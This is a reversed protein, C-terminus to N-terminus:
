HPVVVAYVRDALGFGRQQGAQGVARQHSAGGEPQGVLDDALQPLARAPDGPAPHARDDARPVVATVRQPGRGEQAAATGGGVRHQEVRVARVAVSQRREAFGTTVNHFPDRRCGIEDDVPHHADGTRTRQARRRGLHEGIDIGVVGTTATSMGLPTSTAVPAIEPGATCAASVTVKPPSLGTCASASQPRTLSISM